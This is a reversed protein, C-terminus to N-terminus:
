LVVAGPVAVVSGMGVVKIGKRIDVKDKMDEGLGKDHERAKELIGVEEADAHSTQEQRRPSYMRTQVRVDHDQQKQKRSRMRKKVSKERGM